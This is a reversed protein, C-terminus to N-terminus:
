DDIVIIDSSECSRRKRNSGVEKTQDEEDDSLLDVVIGKDSSSRSAHDHKWNRAAREEALSRLSANIAKKMIEIEDDDARGLQRGSGLFAAPPLTAGATVYGNGSYAPPPPFTVELQAFRLHAPIVGSEMKQILTEADGRRKEVEDNSLKPGGYNGIPYFKKQANVRGLLEERKEADMEHNKLQTELFYDSFVKTSRFTLSMRMNKVNWSPPPQTPQQRAIGHMWDFRSAGSMIYISRRPLTIRIKGEMRPPLRAEDRSGAKPVFYLVGSQGLNVGVIVEGWRYRSDYHHQFAAGPPYRLHLCYNPPVYGPLLGCDRILNTLKHYDDPWRSPCASGGGSQRGNNKNGSYESERKASFIREEM